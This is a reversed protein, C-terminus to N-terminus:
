KDSRSGSYKIKNFLSHVELGSIKDCIKATVCVNMLSLEFVSGHSLLIREGGVFVMLLSVQSGLVAWIFQWCM